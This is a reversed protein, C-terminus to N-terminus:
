KSAYITWVDRFGTYMREVGYKNFVHAQSDYGIMELKLSKKKEYVDIIYESLVIHNQPSFVWGYDSIIEKSDGVDSAICSTGCAMAEVLVNPFAEGHSSPLVLIDFSTMLQPIDNRQGLLIICSELGYSKVIEVLAANDGSCGKGVLVCKFPFKSGIKSLAKFLTKHDKQENWRAVCGIRLLDIDEGYLQRIFDIKSEFPKLSSFDYGNSVVSIKDRKYGIDIHYQAASNACCIIHDPVYASLYSSLKALYYTMKSKSSSNSHRIGWVVKATCFIRAYIGGILDAHYMWTQVIDPEMNKLVKALKFASGIFNKKFNLVVINVGIDRFLSGYKGEGTLSIVTHSDISKGYSVLRFLAGEAGGDDLGSIIHIINM